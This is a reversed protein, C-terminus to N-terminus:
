GQSMKDDISKEQNRPHQKQIMKSGFKGYDMTWDTQEEPSYEQLKTYQNSKMITTNRNGRRPRETM